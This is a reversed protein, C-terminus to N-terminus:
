TVVQFLVVYTFGIIIITQGLVIFISTKPISILFLGVFSGNPWHWKKHVNPKYRFGVHYGEPRFCRFWILVHAQLRWADADWNLKRLM